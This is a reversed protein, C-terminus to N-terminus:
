HQHWRRGLNVGRESLPQMLDILAHKDGVTIYDTRIRFYSVRGDLEARGDLELQGYVTVAYPQWATGRGQQPPLLVHVVNPPISDVVGYEHEMTSVPFETLMFVAPDQSIHRVMFGTICISKGALQKVTKTYELGKPGAPTVLLDPFRVPTYKALVSADVSAAKKEASGAAAPSPDRPHSDDHALPLQAASPATEHHLEAGAELALPRLLASASILCALLGRVANVDSPKISRSSM